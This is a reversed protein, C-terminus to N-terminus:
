NTGAKEIQEIYKKTYSYIPRIAINNFKLTKLVFSQVHGVEKAVQHTTKGTNYLSIISNIKEQSIYNNPM